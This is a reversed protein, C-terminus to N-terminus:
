PFILLLFFDKPLSFLFFLGFFFCVSYMYSWKKLFLLFDKSFNAFARPKALHRECDWCRSLIQLMQKFILTNRLSDMLEKKETAHQRGKVKKTCTKVLNGKTHTTTSYQVGSLSIFFTNCHSAKGPLDQDITMSALHYFDWMQNQFSYM